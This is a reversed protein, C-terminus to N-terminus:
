RTMAHRPCGHSRLYAVRRGQATAIFDAQVEISCEARDEDDIITGCSHDTVYFSCRDWLSDRELDVTEPRLQSPACGAATLVLMLLFTRKM